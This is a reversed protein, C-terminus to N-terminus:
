FGSCYTCSNKLFPNGWLVGGSVNKSGPPDAKEVLLVNLKSAALRMAASTGAPGGGVVIADFESM